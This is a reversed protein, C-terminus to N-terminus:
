KEEIEKEPFPISALSDRSIETRVEFMQAEQYEEGTIETYQEMTIKGAKVFIGVDNKSYFGKNYYRKAIAYFDLPM